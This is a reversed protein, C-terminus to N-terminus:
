IEGFFSPNVFELQTDTCLYTLPADIKIYNNEKNVETIRFTNSNLKCYQGIYLSNVNGSIPTLVNAGVAESFVCTGTSGYSGGDKVFYSKKHVADYLKMFPEVTINFKEISDNLVYVGGQRKVEFNPHYAIKIPVQTTDQLIQLPCNNRLLTSFFLYKYKISGNNIISVKFSNYSLSQNGRYYGIYVDEKRWYKSLEISVNDDNPDEDFCSFDEKIPAIFAQGSLEVYFETPKSVDVLIGKNNGGFKDWYTFEGYIGFNQCTSNDIYKDNVRLLNLQNYDIKSVVNLNQNYLKIKRRVTEKIDPSDKIYLVSQPAYTWTGYNDDVYVPNLNGGSLYLANDFVIHSTNKQVFFIPYNNSTINEIRTGSIVIDSVAAGNTDIFLCARQYETGNITVPLQGEFAMNMFHWANAGYSGDSEFKIDTSRSIAGTTNYTGSHYGFSGGYVYNENPWGGNISKVIFSELTSAMQVLYFHTCCLGASNSALAILGRTFGCIVLNRVNCGFLNECVLGQSETNSWDVKYFGYNDSKKYLKDIKINCYYLGKIHVCTINPSTCYIFDIDIDCAHTNDIYITDNVAFGKSSRGYLLVHKQAYNFPTVPSDVHKGEIYDSNGNKIEQDKYTISQIANKIAQTDDTIMDGIAGFWKVDVVLSFMYSKPHVNLNEFIKGSAIIKVSDIFYLAHNGLLCGGLFIWTCNGNVKYSDMEYYTVGTTFATGTFREYTSGNNIYYAKRNDYAEDETPSYSVTGLNIPTDFIITANDLAFLEELSHRSAYYVPMSTSASKEALVLKNDITTLQNGDPNNTISGGGSSQILQLLEPTINNIGVTNEAINSVIKSNIANQVDEFSPKNAVEVKTALQSLSTNNAKSLIDEKSAYKSELETKSLYEPLEEKKAYSEGEQKTLYKADTEITKAYGTLDVKKYDFSNLEEHTVADEKRAYNTLTKNLEPRSIIESLVINDYILDPLTVGEAYEEYPVIQQGKAIIIGSELNSSQSGFNFRVYKAGELKPVIAYYNTGSPSKNSFYSIFNFDEDYYCGACLYTGGLRATWNCYLGEEPLEIFDSYGGGEGGYNLPQGNDRRIVGNGQVITLPNLINKNKPVKIVEGLNNSKQELKSIITDQIRNKEEFTTDNVKKSLAKYIGDSTVVHSTNGEIPEVDIPVNGSEIVKTDLLEKLIKGQKASLPKKSNDSNLTDQIDNIESQFMGKNEDFIADSKVLKGDARGPELIIPIKAM